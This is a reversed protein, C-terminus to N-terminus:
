YQKGYLISFFEGDITNHRCFFFFFPTSNNNKM